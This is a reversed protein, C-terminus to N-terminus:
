QVTAFSRDVASFHERGQADNRWVKVAELKAMGTAKYVQQLLQHRRLRDELGGHDPQAKLQQLLEQAHAAILM